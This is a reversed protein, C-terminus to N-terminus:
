KLSNGCYPCFQANKEVPTGCDECHKTIPTNTNIGISQPRFQQGYDLTPESISKTPPKRLEQGLRIQGTLIFLAGIIASVFDILLRLVQFIYDITESYPIFIFFFGFVLLILNAIICGLLINYGQGIKISAKTANQSENGMSYIKFDIWGSKIFYYAIASIVLRLFYIIQSIITLIAIDITGLNIFIPYIFGFINLGIFIILGILIKRWFQMLTRNQSEKAFKQGFFLYLISLIWGGITVVLGFINMPESLPGTFLLWSRIDTSIFYFIGPLITFYISVVFLLISNIGSIFLVTGFNKRSM